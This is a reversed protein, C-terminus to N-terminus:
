EGHMEKRIQSGLDPTVETAETFREIVQLRRMAAIADDERAFPGGACYGSPVHSIVWQSNLSANLSGHVAWDGLVLASIAVRIVKRVPETENSM